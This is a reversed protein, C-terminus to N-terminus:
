HIYNNCDLEGCAASGGKTLKYFTHGCHPKPIPTVVPHYASLRDNLVTYIISQASDETHMAGPMTDLEVTVMFTVTHRM